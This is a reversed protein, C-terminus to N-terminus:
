PHPFHTLRTVPWLSARAAGPAGETEALSREENQSRRQYAIECHLQRVICQRVLFQITQLLM